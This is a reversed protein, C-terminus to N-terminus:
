SPQLCLLHTTYYKVSPTILAESAPLVALTSATLATLATTMRLTGVTVTGTEPCINPSDRQEVSHGTVPETTPPVGQITRHRLRYTPAEEAQQALVIAEAPVRNHQEAGQYM